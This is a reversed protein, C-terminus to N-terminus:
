SKIVLTGAIKDHLGQKKETFAVMLYGIFLILLSIIKSWYRANAKGFGIRKGTVDTVKLGLLKKGLSAQWRSSESITFWLWQIVLGLIYGLAEGAVEIEYMSASDAMSAGLAFALPLVIIIAVLQCLVTDIIAALARYWFGAYTPVKNETEAHENEATSKSNLKSGCETCFKASADNMVGCQSCYM